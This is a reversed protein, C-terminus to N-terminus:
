VFPQAVFSGMKFWLLPKQHYAAWQDAVFVQVTPRSPKFTCSVTDMATDCICYITPVAWTLLDSLRLISICNLGYRLRRPFVAVIAPVLLTMDSCASLHIVVRPLSAVTLVVDPVWHTISSNCLLCLQFTDGVPLNYVGLVTWLWRM